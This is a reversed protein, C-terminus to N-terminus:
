DSRLDHEHNELKGELHAIRVLLKMHEEEMEGIRRELIEIQITSLSRVQKLHREKSM